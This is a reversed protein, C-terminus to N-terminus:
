VSRKSASVRLYGTHDSLYLKVDRNLNNEFDKLTQEYKKRTEVDHNKLSRELDNKLESITQRNDKLLRQREKDAQYKISNIESQLRSLENELQRINPAM